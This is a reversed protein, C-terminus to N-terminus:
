GISTASLYHKGSQARTNHSNTHGVGITIHGIHKGAVLVNDVVDTIAWTHAFGGAAIGITNGMTAKREVAVLVLQRAIAARVMEMTARFAELIFDPLYIKQRVVHHAKGQLRGVAILTIRAMHAHFDTIAPAVIACQVNIILSARIRRRHNVEGVMWIEVEIPMVGTKGEMMFKADRCRPPELGVLRQSGGSCHRRHGTRRHIEGGHVFDRAIEVSFKLSQAMALAVVM